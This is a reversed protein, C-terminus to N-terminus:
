SPFRRVHSFREWRFHAGCPFSRFYERWSTPGCGWSGIRFWAPHANSFHAVCFLVPAAEGGTPVSASGFPFTKPGTGGPFPSQKLSALKAKEPLPGLVKPRLSRPPPEKRQRSEKQPPVFLFGCVMSNTSRLRSGDYMLSGSGDFIRGAGFAEFDNMERHPGAGFAGFVNVGRQPGAWSLTGFCAGRPRPFPREAQRGQRAGCHPGADESPLLGKLSFTAAGRGM